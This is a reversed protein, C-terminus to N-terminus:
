RGLVDLSIQSVLDIHIGKKAMTSALNRAHFDYGRSELEQCIQRSTAEFLKPQDEAMSKMMDLADDTSLEPDRIMDTIRQVTTNILNANLTVPASPDNAATLQSFKSSLRGLRPEVATNFGLHGFAARLPQVSDLALSQSVTSM